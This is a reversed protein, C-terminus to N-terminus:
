ADLFFADFRLVNEDNWERGRGVWIAIPDEEPTRWSIQLFGSACRQKVVRKLEASCSAADM